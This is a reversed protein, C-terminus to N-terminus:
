KHRSLGIICDQIIECMGVGALGAKLGRGTKRRCGSSALHLVKLEARYLKGGMNQTGLKIEEVKVSGGTEGKGELM